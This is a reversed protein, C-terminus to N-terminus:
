WGWGGIMCMYTTLKEKNSVGQVCWLKLPANVDNIKIHVYISVM